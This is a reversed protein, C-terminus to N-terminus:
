ASRRRLAFSAFDPPSSCCCDDVATVVLADVLADALAVASDGGGLARGGVKEEGLKGLGPMGSEGDDLGASGDVAPVGRVMRDLGAPM